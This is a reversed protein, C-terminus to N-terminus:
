PPPFLRARGLGAAAPREGRVSPPRGSADFRPLAAGVPGPSGRAAWRSPCAGGVRAFGTCGVPEALGRVGWPSPCDASLRWGALERGGRRSICTHLIEGCPSAACPH